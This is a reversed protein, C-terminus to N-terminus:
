RVRALSPSPTGNLSRKACVIAQHEGRTLGVSAPPDSRLSFSRGQTSVASRTVVTLCRRSSRAEVSGSTRLARGIRVTSPRPVM